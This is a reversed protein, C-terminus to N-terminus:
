GGWNCGCVAYKPNPFKEKFRAFQLAGGRHQLWRMILKNKELLQLRYIGLNFIM